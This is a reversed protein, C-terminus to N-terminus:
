AKIKTIKDLKKQKNLVQRGRYKGCEHCVTHSQATAGCDPCKVLQVANSLKTLVKTKFAGYRKRVKNKPTKQKPVPHKPM